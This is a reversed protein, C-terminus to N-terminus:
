ELTFRKPGRRPPPQLPIEEPVDDARARRRWKWFVLVAVALVLLVAAGSVLYWLGGAVPSLIFVISQGADGNAMQEEQLCQISESRQCSLGWDETLQARMATEFQALECLPQGACVTLTTTGNKGNSRARVFHKRAVADWMLEVDIRDGFGPVSGVPQKLMALLASLTERHGAFLHLRAPRSWLPPPARSGVIAATTNVATEMLGLIHRM